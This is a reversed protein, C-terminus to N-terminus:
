GSTPFRRGEGTWLRRRKLEPVLYDDYMRYHIDRLRLASESQAMVNFMRAEVYRDKRATHFVTHRLERLSNYLSTDLSDLKSLDVGKEKCGEVVSFLLAYWLYLYIGFPEVTIHLLLQDEPVTSAEAMAEDARERLLNARMWQRHLVGLTELSL